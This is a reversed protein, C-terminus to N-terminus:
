SSAIKVAEDIANPDYGTIDYLKVGNKYLFVRPISSINFKEAIANHKDIDIKLIIAGVISAKQELVPGLKKCPGCWKAHFDVFIYKDTYKNLFSDLNEGPKLDFVNNSDEKGKIPVYSDDEGKKMEGININVGGMNGFCQISKIELFDAEENQFYITLESVNRWKPINLKLKKGIDDKLKFTQTSPIDEVDSFDIDNKNVYCKMLSPNHDNNIGDIQLNILNVKEKFKINIIMSADGEISKITQNNNEFIVGIQKDGEINLGSCESKAILNNLNQTQQM